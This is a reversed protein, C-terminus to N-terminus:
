RSAFGYNLLRTADKFADASGLVVAILHAGRRHASAVLCHEAKTTWGTKVGDAGRYTDLLHNKNVYIKSFTPRPWRVRKSRTRVVTRLFPDRLLVRALAALDGPTSYNGQDVAGSSNSFHSNRLGLADAKRNMRTVFAREGGDVAFALARADDNGSFLLLGYFLKWARIREGVRLGERFPEVHPVGRRVTVVDENHLKERAVIATMIKTLSAIPLRRNPRKAWLVNGTTRDVLIAARGLLPPEFRNRSHHGYTILAPPAGRPVASPTTAHDSGSPDAAPLASGGGRDRDHWAVVGLTAALLLLAISVGYPWWRRRRRRGPTVVPLVM